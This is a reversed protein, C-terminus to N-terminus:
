ALAVGYLIFDFTVPKLTFTASNLTQLLRQRRVSNIDLYKRVWSLDAVNM